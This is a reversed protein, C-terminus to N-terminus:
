QHTDIDVDECFGKANTWEPPMLNDGLDIGLAHLGCTM